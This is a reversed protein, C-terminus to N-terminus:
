KLGTKEQLEDNLLLCFAEVNGKDPNEKMLGLIFEATNEVIENIRDNTQVFGYNEIDSVEKRM